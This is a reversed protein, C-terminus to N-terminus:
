SDAGAAGGGQGPSDKPLRVGLMGYLNSAPGALGAQAKYSELM